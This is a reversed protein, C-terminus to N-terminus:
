LSEVEFAQLTADSRREFAQDLDGGSWLILICGIGSLPLGIAIRMRDDPWLGTRSRLRQWGFGLSLLGLLFASPGIIWSHKPQRKSTQQGQDDVSIVRARQDNVCFIRGAPLEFADFRGGVLSFPGDCRGIPEGIFGSFRSDFGASQGVGGDLGVRCGALKSAFGGSGVFNILLSQNPDLSGKHEHMARSSFSQRKLQCKLWICERAPARINLPLVTAIRRCSFQGYCSMAKNANLWDSIREGNQDSIRM